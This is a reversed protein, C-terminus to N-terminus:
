CSAEGEGQLACIRSARCRRRDPEVGIKRRSDSRFHAEPRVRSSAAERQPMTYILGVDHLIALAPQATDRDVGFEPAPRRRSAATVFRASRKLLPMPSWRVKEDM